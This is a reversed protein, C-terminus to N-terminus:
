FIDNISLLGKTDYLRGCKYTVISAAEFKSSRSTSLSETPCHQLCTRAKGHYCKHLHEKRFPVQTRFIFGMFCYLLANYLSLQTVKQGRAAVVNFMTDSRVAVLLEAKCFWHIIVAKWSMSEVKVLDKWKVPRKLTHESLYKNEKKSGYSSCSHSTATRWHQNQTHAVM